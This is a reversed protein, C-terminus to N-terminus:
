LPLNVTAVGRFSIKQEEWLDNATFLEEPFSQTACGRGWGHHIMSLYLKVCIIVSSTLEHTHCGHWAWSIKHKVTSERMRWCKCEEWRRNQLNWLAEWSLTPTSSIFIGNIVSSEITVYKMKHDVTLRQLWQFGSFSFSEQVMTLYIICKHNFTPYM